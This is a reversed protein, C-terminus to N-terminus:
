SMPPNWRPRNRSITSSGAGAEKTTLPDDVGVDQELDADGYSGDDTVPSM